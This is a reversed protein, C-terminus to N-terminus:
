FFNFGKHKQLFDVNVNKVLMRLKMSNSYIQRREKQDITNFLSTLEHEFKDWWMYPKKEGSYFLTELIKETHIVDAANIGVGKYYEKLAIFDLRSYRQAQHVQMRSEAVQNGSTFNVLYTHVEAANITSAERKLPAQKTYEDLLNPQPTRVAKKNERCIYQLPM